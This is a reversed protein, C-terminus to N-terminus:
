QETLRLRFFARGAAANTYCHHSGDGTLQQLSTWDHLDASSQLEYSLNTVTPWELRANGGAPEITLRRDVRVAFFGLQRWFIEALNSYCLNSPHVLMDAGMYGNNTMWEYSVCPNMGDLYVRHDRLAAARVLRNQAWTPGQSPDGADEFRYPTGVYVVDGNTVCQQWMTELGILNNSFVSSSYDPLEKMHWIVLQPSVASLIPYLVNTSVDFLRGSSGLGAGAETMYVIEMGASSSDRFRPGLIINTGGLGDVRLRYPQRPVWVSAYRGEPAPSYGDLTKLPASWPGSNSSVSLTFSGGGPHAIWFVGVTDCWFNSGYTSSYWFVDSGAPLYYYSIWWNTWWSATSRSGTAGNELVGPLYTWHRFSYTSAGLNAQLENFLFTQVSQYSESVSDGFALVTVPGNSQDVARLFRQTFEVNTTTLECGNTQGVAWDAGVLSGISVCM